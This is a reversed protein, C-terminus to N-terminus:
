IPEEGVRPSLAAFPHDLAESLVQGGFVTGLGYLPEEPVHVVDEDPAQLAHLLHDDAVLVAELQIAIVDEDVLVELRLHTGLSGPALAATIPQVDWHM